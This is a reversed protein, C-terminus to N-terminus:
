EEDKYYSHEGIRADKMMGKWNTVTQMYERTMAM